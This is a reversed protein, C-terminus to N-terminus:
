TYSDQLFIHCRVGNNKAPSDGHVSSGSPSGNSMISPSLVCLEHIDMSYLM